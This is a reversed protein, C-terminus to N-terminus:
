LNCTDTVFKLCGALGGSYKRQCLCEGIEIVDVTWKHICIDYKVRAKKAESGLPMPWPLFILTETFIRMEELMEEVTPM